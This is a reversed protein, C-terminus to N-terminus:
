QNVHRRPTMVSSHKGRRTPWRPASTSPAVGSAPKDSSFPRVPGRRDRRGSYGLAAGDGHGVGDVAGGAARREDDAVPEDGDHRALEAAADREVVAAPEVRGAPGDMEDLCGLALDFRAGTRKAAIALLSKRAREVFDPAAGTREPPIVCLGQDDLERTYEGLSLREIEAELEPLDPAEPRMRAAM